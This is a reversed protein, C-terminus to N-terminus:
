TGLSADDQTAVYLQRGGPGLALGRAGGLAPAATPCALASENDRICGSFTLRAGASAPVVAAIVAGLCVLRKLVGPVTRAPGSPAASGGPVIGEQPIPNPVFTM